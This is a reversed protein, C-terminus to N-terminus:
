SREFVGKRNRKSKTKRKEQARERKRSERVKKAKDDSVGLKRLLRRKFL